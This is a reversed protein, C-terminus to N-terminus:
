LMEIWAGAFPAVSDAMIVPEDELQMEIWAGAFPAVCIVCYLLYIKLIEIWAGAFPAVKVTVFFLGIVFFKM